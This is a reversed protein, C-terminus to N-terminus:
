ITCSVSSTQMNQVRYVIGLAHEFLPVKCYAAGYNRGAILEIDVRVKSEYQDCKVCSYFPRNSLKWNALTVMM